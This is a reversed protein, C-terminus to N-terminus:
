GPDKRYYRKEITFTSWHGTSLHHLGAQEAAEYTDTNVGRQTGDDGPWRPKHQEGLTGVPVFAVTYFPNLEAM